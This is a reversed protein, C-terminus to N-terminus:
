IIKRLVGNNEFLLNRAHEKSCAKKLMVIAVKVNYDISALVEQAKDAEVCAIEAVIRVARKKLKSNTPKLDIMYNKYTKGIKVMSATTLMNLVMKQATGSKLRTSGTIVEAGLELAILVDSLDKIKASRNCVLGVTKINRKKAEELVGQLYPANGSASIAVVTDGTKAASKILDNKGGSVSDEAGEVAFRLAKDGGAIYGRVFDYDVGFTPPCESADLVGLRGSTGAGFYLLNGGLLFTEQIFDVAKAINSSQEKIADTIIRDERNILNVIEESSLMDINVSRPNSKETLIISEM